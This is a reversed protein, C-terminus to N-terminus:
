PTLSHYLYQMVIGSLPNRRIDHLAPHPANTGCQRMLYRPFITLLGEPQQTTLVIRLYCAVDVADAHLPCLSQVIGKHPLEPWLCVFVFAPRLLFAPTLSDEPTVQAHRCPHAYLQLMGKALVGDVHYVAVRVAHCLHLAYAELSGVLHSCFHLYNAIVFPTHSGTQQIHQFLEYLHFAVAAQRTIHEDSLCRVRHHQVYVFVAHALYQVLGNRVARQFLM